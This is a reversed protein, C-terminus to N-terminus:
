PFSGTFPTKSHLISEDAGPNSKACCEQTKHDQQNNQNHPPMSHTSGGWGADQHPQVKRPIAVGTKIHIATLLAERPIRDM